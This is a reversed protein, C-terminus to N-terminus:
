RDPGRVTVGGDVPLIVGTVYKAEDSALFVAAWGIDWPEGEQKLLSANKRRERLEDSMGASYVMPTYVPGPMICNARIHDRGHDVALAQTLTAVAAKSVSYATLGRPRLAAISSVNTIAGGGNERLVPIAHKCTLMMSTVNVRQVHDWEVESIQEVTGRGGIGVNNHLIDLKGYRSVADAVIRSCDETATVDAVAIAADNGEARIMDLTAQVAEEDRDVLLVDAGERAFLIATARGNGIGEARSGAGTIIASKGALRDPM